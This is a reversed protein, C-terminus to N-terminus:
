LISDRVYIISLSNFCLRRLYSVELKAGLKSIVSPSPYIRSLATFLLRRLGSVGSDSGKIGVDGVASRLPPPFSIAVQCKCLCSQDISLM